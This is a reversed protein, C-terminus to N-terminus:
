IQLSPMGSDRSKEKDADSFAFWSNEMDGNFQSILESWIEVLKDENETSTEQEFWVAANSGAPINPYDKYLYRLANGDFYELALADLDETNETRTCYSREKASSIFNLADQEDNFFIVASLINGPAPLLKLKILTIVGLTGESGIFLDIADMGPKTYYGSANKVDPMNYDPVSIEFKTGEETILSLLNGEAFNQGRQLKLTEGNALIINLALVYNRTPGYKFTKEGSANTAVTGGIYCNKETPDPPYFLSRESTIKLFESLLFGPEAVAFLETENVEVLRNLKDTSLVIGGEPVRAGTLGTGNGSITVPTNNNYAQLLVQKVEAENEPFYVADCHGKYNAADVLYNQIEDPSTKIIM